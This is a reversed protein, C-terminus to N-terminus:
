RNGTNQKKKDGQIANAFNPVEILNSVCLEPVVTQHNEFPDHPIMWLKQTEPEYMIM